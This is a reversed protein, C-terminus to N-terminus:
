SMFLVETSIVRRLRIAALEPNGYIQAPYSRTGIRLIRDPVQDDESLGQLGLGTGLVGCGDAALCM